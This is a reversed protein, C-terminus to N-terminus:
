GMARLGQVDHEGTNIAFNAASYVFGDMKGVNSSPDQRNFDRHSEDWAPSLDEVCMTQLHFAAVQGTNTFNPNSANAPLGDISGPVGLATRYGNLKGFYHDFSRNEQAMFIIHQVAQMGAPQPGTSASGSSSSAAGSSAAGGCGALALSAAAIMLLFAPKM